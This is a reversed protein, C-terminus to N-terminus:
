PQAHFKPLRPKKYGAPIGKTIFPFNDPDSVQITGNAALEYPHGDPDLPIGPLQEANALEAMSSPLRGTREGFRTVAAQLHTIDEDVQLSRLHELANQRINSEHSSEYAASWLLRATGFDGAHEEMQAALIKMFPHADPVKSGQAFVEGAKKYDKLETYYVFGLDYFLHWNDPNNAIGYQMLQVAREPQGAGNPPKPALFSAGFQYAPLLHPDLATTIELLPALENYSHARDYHRHGFYQVARTWYICAMLGNFGLSARKVITPSNIYLADEITAAPRIEDIHRLLFVSAAMSVVLCTSAFITTRQRSNM